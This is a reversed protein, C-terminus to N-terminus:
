GVNRWWFFVMQSQRHGDDVLGEITHVQCLELPHPPYPVGLFPGLKSLILFDILITGIGFSSLTHNVGCSYVPIPFKDKITIQNLARYDICLRWSGDHKKVLIVPSSCPSTNPRIICQSLM